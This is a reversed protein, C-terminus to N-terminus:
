IENRRANYFNEILSLFLYLFVIIAISWFHFVFIFLLSILLFIIRIENGKWKFTKFKLSFLPMNSVLLFSMILIIVVILSPDFLFNLAKNDVDSLVLPYTCFFITNAPTPLGIFRESQKTDINFKALRFLSFFPICFAVLPFLDADRKTISSLWQMWTEAIQKSSFVSLGDDFTVSLTLVVFMMIGPAVGFTVIDALSDLQKGLESYSRTWRAVFGDLFDFIAGLFILAVGDMLNGSLILLISFVGSLLNLSTIINAPSFMHIM